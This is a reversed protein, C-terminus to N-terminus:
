IKTTPTPVSLLNNIHHRNNNQIKSHYDNIMTKIYDKMSQTKVFGMITAVVQQRNPFVDFRQNIPRSENDIVVETIFEGDLEGSLFDDDSINTDSPKFYLFIQFFLYQTHKTLYWVNLFLIPVRSKYKLATEKAYKCVYLDSVVNELVSFGFIRNHNVPQDDDLIEEGLEYFKIKSANDIGTVGYIITASM